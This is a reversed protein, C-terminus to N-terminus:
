ELENDSRVHLPSSPSVNGDNAVRRSKRGRPQAVAAGNAATNKKPRGRKKATPPDAKVEDTNESVAEDQNENEIVKPEEM